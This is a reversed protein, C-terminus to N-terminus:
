DPLQRPAAMGARLGSLITNLAAQPGDDALYHSSEAAAILTQIVEEQTLAGGAVYGGLKYAALNLSQNRSGVPMRAVEEQEARLAALAYRRARPLGSASPPPTTPRLSATSVPAAVPAVARLLSSSALPLQEPAVLLREWRYAGHETRSPPAVLYARGLGRLHSGDPLGRVKLDPGEPPLRLYLHAGGRPTRCLPAAKLEPYGAQWREVGTPDDVDLVLV